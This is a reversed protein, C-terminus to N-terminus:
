KPMGTLKKGRLSLAKDALKNRAKKWLGWPTQDDDAVNFFHLPGDPDPMKAKEIRSDLLDGAENHYYVDTRGDPLFVLRGTVPADADHIHM